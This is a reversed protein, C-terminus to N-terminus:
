KIKLNNIKNELLKIKSIIEDISNSHTTSDNIYAILAQKINPYYWHNREIIKKETKPNIKDTPNQYHLTTCINDIEITYNDDLIITNKM